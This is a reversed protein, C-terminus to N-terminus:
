KAIEASPHFSGFFRTQRWLLDFVAGEPIRNLWERVALVCIGSALVLTPRLQEVSFSRVSGYELLSLM